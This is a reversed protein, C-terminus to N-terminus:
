FGKNMIKNVWHFRTLSKLHMKIIILRDRDNVDEKISRKQVNKNMFIEEHFLGEKLNFKWIFSRNRQFNPTM